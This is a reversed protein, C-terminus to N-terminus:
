NFLNGDESAKGTPQPLVDYLLSTGKAPDPDLSHSRRVLTRHIKDSRLASHSVRRFRSLMSDRQRHWNRVRTRSGGGGGVYTISYLLYLYSDHFDYLLRVTSTSRPQQLSAQRRSQTWRHERHICTVIGRAILLVRRVPSAPTGFPDLPCHIPMEEPLARIGPTPFLRLQNSTVKLASGVPLLKFNGPDGDILSDIRVKSIRLRPFKRGRGERLEFRDKPALEKRPEM